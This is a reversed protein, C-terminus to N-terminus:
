FTRGALKVHEDDVLVWGTAAQNVIRIWWETKPEAVLRFTQDDRTPCPDADVVQGAVRIFCTGEARYQLYEIVGDRECPVRRDPFRGSYYMDRTLLQLSGLLRGTVNTAARVEFRGPEITRYRSEDFSISQGATVTLRRVVTASTSPAERVILEDTGSQFRPRGEGPWLATEFTVTEVQGVATAV